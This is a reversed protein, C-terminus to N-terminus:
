KALASLLASRSEMAKSLIRVITRANYGIGGIVVSWGPNAVAGDLVQSWAALGTRTDEVVSADNGKSMRQGYADTGSLFRAVVRVDDAWMAASYAVAQEMGKIDSM